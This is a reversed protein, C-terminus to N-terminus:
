AAVKKVQARHMAFAGQNTRMLANLKKSDYATIGLQNVAMNLVAENDDFLVIRRFPGAKNIYARIKAQKYPADHRTDDIDRCIMGHYPLGHRALLEIDAPGIVRSTCVAVHGVTYHQQMLYALPLISDQLIREETNNERWHALDLSGDPLTLQRHKSCLVTGDLDWLYLTKM